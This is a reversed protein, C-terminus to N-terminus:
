LYFPLARDIIKVSTPPRADDRGASDGRRARSGAKPSRRLAIGLSRSRPQDCAAGGTGEFSKAITELVRNVGAANRSPSEIEVINRIDELIADSDVRDDLFSPM